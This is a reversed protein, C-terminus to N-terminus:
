GRGIRRKRREAIKRKAEPTSRLKAIREEKEALEEVTPAQAEQKFAMANRAVLVQHIEQRLFRNEERVIQEGLNKLARGLALRYARAPNRQDGPERKSSGTATIGWPTQTIVVTANKDQVAHIPIETDFVPSPIPHDPM